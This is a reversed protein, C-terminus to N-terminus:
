KIVAAAESKSFVFQESGTNDAFFLIGSSQIVLEAVPHGEGDFVLLPAGDAEAGTRQFGLWDIASFIDVSRVGRDEVFAPKQIGQRLRPLSYSFHFLRNRKCLYMRKDLFDM